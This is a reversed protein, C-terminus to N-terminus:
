FTQFRKSLLLRYDDNLGYLYILFVPKECLWQLLQSLQNIYEQAMQLTEYKSLQTEPGLGPLVTRLRDFGQNLLDMRRRERANAALRRKKLVSESMELEPKKVKGANNSYKIKQCKNDSLVKQHSRERRNSLDVPHIEQLPLNELSNSFSYLSSRKPYLVLYPHTTPIMSLGKRSIPFTINNDLDIYIFPYMLRFTIWDWRCNSQISSARSSCHEKDIDVMSPEIKVETKPKYEKM